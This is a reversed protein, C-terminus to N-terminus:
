LIVVTVGDGGEGQEGARFSKAYPSHKLFDRLERKIAGTGHGHIVVAADDGNRVCRDLFQDINRLADEARQGRVDLTPSALTLPAAAVEKAKDLQAEKKKTGPFKPADKSKTAPGLETLPV